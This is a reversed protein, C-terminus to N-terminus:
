ALYISTVCLLKQHYNRHPITAQTIAQLTLVCNSSFLKGPFPLFFTHYNVSNSSTQQNEPVIGTSSYDPRATMRARTCMKCLSQFFSCYTRETEYWTYRAWIEGLVVMRLQPFNTNRKKQFKKIFHLLLCVNGSINEESRM